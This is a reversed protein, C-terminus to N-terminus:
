VYGEGVLVEVFDGIEKRQDASIGVFQVGAGVGKGLTLIPTGDCKINHNKFTFVMELKRRELLTGFVMPSRGGDMASFLFVGDKDIRSVRLDVSREGSSLQCKLGPIPKPCGQYWTLQPDFFSRKMEHNLWPLIISFFLLLFISYFGLAPYRMRIAVWISAFIWAGALGSAIPIAWRKANMIWASLPICILAFALSWYGM